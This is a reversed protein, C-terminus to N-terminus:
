KKSPPPPPPPPVERGDATRRVYLMFNGAGGGGFLPAHIRYYGTRPAQIKIRADPYGGGDDDRAIIAAREIDVLFLYSDFEQSRMDIQYHQGQTLHITYARSRKNIIPDHPDTRSDFRNDSRYTGNGALNINIAGPPFNGAPKVDDKKDDDKPDDNNDRKQQDKNDKKDNVAVSDKSGSFYRYILFGGGGGCGLCLLLVAGIGVIILAISGIKAGPDHAEGRLGSRSTSKKSTPPPGSPKKDADDDDDDNFKPSPPPGSKTGTPKEDDDDKYKPAKSKSSTPKEDDKPGEPPPPDPQAAAVAAAIFVHACKQCKVKKGALEDKFRFIAKCNPCTMTASM